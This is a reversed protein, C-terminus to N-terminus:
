WSNQVITSSGISGGAISCSSHEDGSNLLETHELTLWNKASSKIKTFYMNMGWHNKEDSEKMKCTKRLVEWDLFFVYNDSSRRGDMLLTEFFM